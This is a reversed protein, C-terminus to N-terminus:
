EDNVGLVDGRDTGLGPMGSEIEGFGAGFLGESVEIRASSKFGTACREDERTRTVM